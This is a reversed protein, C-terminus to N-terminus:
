TIRFVGTLLLEFGWFHVLFKFGIVTSLVTKKGGVGLPKPSSTSSSIKKVLLISPSTM